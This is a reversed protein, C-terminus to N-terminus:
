RRVVMVRPPDEYVVRMPVRRKELELFTGFDLYAAGQPLARWRDLFEDLTPIAREPELSQGFAFEDHYDVLTVDRQLYFPLTQDYSRVAFVPATPEIEVELAAAMAAASRTQGVADFSALVIALAIVQGLALALVATTVRQRGLAWWGIGAALLFVAAGNRIGMALPHLLETTLAPTALRHAQTAVALVATWVAAALWLQLRLAGPQLSRLRLGLLLALAPFMPQIYSPLKSGSLSFFVLVFVSWAVLLDAVSLSGTRGADGPLPRLLPLGGTWPFLGIALLPLYYWWPGTREHVHTLYRMLHEHVFFFQAFSPNRMQVLVFWPTVLLLFLPLGLGWQLQRWLRFDRRWLSSAFLVAGPVLIGILGKSLVAAAMSAWALLVWRRQEAAPVESWFAVLVACLAVTLFFTLGADLTLYHGNAFVWTMSAAIAFVRVGTERDRLRRAAYGVALATLLSALAPWARAAFVSVGFVKFFIAGIWYQLPPKEFYILGNLRPTIWDGSRAMEWALTAYRGEDPSILARTGLTAFWAICLLVFLVALLGPSLADSLAPGASWPM